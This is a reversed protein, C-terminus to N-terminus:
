IIQKHPIYESLHIYDWWLEITYFQKAYITVGSIHRMKRYTSSVM